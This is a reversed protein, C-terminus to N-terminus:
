FTSYKLAAWSLCCLLISKDTLIEKRKLAVSGARNSLSVFRINVPFAYLRCVACNQFPLVCPCVSHYWTCSLLCVGRHLCYLWKGIVHFHAQSLPPGVLLFIVSRKWIICYRKMLSPFGQLRWSAALNRDALMVLLWPDHSNHDLMLLAVCEADISLM